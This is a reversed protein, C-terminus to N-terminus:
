GNLVSIILLSAGVQGHKTTRALRCDGLVQLEVLVLRTSESWSLSHAKLLIFTGDVIQATVHGAQFLVVGAVGELFHLSDAFHLALAVVLGSLLLLAEPRAGLNGVRVRWQMALHHTWDVEQFVCFEAAADLGGELRACAILNIFCGGAFSLRGVHGLVSGLVMMQVRVVAAGLNQVLMLVQALLAHCLLLALM